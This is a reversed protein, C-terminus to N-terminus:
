LDFDLGKPVFFGGSLPIKHEFHIKGASSAPCGIGNM